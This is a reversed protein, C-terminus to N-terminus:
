QEYGYEKLYLIFETGKGPESEVRIHGGNRTVMNNVIHLGIGMGDTKSSIRQFPNFLNKGYKSLDIGPGNDKVSLIFFDGERDFSIEIVPKRGPFTYKLANTLLNRIISRIYGEVYRIKEETNKNILVEAKVENIKEQHAALVQNVIAIVDIGDKSMERNDQTDIIQVLGKLTMDLRNINKHISSLLKKKQQENANRFVEETLKLNAVPARLDHAIAHVFNDLYKNTNNLETIIENLRKNSAALELAREEIKFELGTEINKQVTIDTVIVCYYLEDDMPFSTVALLVPVNGQGSTKLKIERFVKKSEADFICESFTESDEEDLFTNFDAGIIKQLPHSLFDAFYKNSYVIMRQNNIVLAGESMNEILIRYMYDRDTLDFYESLLLTNGKDDQSHNVVRGGQKEAISLRDRLERNEQELKNVYNNGTLLTVKNEKM